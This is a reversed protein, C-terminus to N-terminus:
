EVIEKNLKRLDSGAPYAYSGANYYGYCFVGIPTKAKEPIPGSHVTHVGHKVDCTWAEYTVGDIVGDVLPGHCDPSTTIEVDDIKATTGQPM